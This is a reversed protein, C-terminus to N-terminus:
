PIFSGPIDTALVECEWTLPLARRKLVAPDLQRSPRLLSPVNSEQYWFFGASFTEPRERWDTKGKSVCPSPTCHRAEGHNCTAARDVGEAGWKWVKLLGGGLVDIKSAAATIMSGPPHSASCGPSRLGVGLELGLSGPVLATLVVGRRTPFSWWLRRRPLSTM